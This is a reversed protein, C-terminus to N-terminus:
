LKKVNIKTTKKPSRKYFPEGKPILGNDTERDTQETRDTRDQGTRDQRYRQHITALRLSTFHTPNLTGSFVNYTM